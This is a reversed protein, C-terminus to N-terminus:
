KARKISTNFEKEIYSATLQNDNKKSYDVINEGIEDRVLTDAGNDTLLKFIEKTSHQAAHHLPTRMTHKLPYECRAFYGMEEIEKKSKYRHNVDAGNAILYQVSEKISFQIAYYLATKGFPNQYNIDSGATILLKLYDLNHVAFFLPSEKGTNLQLNSDLIKKIFSLPKELLLSAKLATLKQQDNLKTLMLALEDSTTDVEILENKRNSSYPHSGGAWTVLIEAVNHAAILAENEALNFKEQYFDSLKNISQPLNLVLESYKEYNYPSKLSWSKLYSMTPSSELLFEPRDKRLKNLSSPSIGAMTLDHHLIRNHLYIISGTCGYVPNESRIEDALKILHKIGDFNSLSDPCNYDIEVKARHGSGLDYSIGGEFIIEPYKKLEECSIKSDELINHTSPIEAKVSAFSYQSFIFFISSYIYKMTRGQTKGNPTKNYVYSLQKVSLTM